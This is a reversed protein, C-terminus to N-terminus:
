GYPPLLRRFGHALVVALFLLNRPLLAPWFLPLPRANVGQARQEVRAALRRMWGVSRPWDAIGGVWDAPVGADGVTAGCIAGTVAGVTDADGGLGVAEELARRFDAPHSLWAHLAVPVTAYAYGSVGREQGIARAFAASSERGEVSSRLRDLLRTLEADPPDLLPAAEDLFTGVSVGEPGARAGHRAAAAVLLAAREARADTHTIRTAARVWSRVADDGELCLGLLAARMAPGNGASAVGSRAPPFGVWLRVLARGTGLGVGAPLGLLWLRLRWALSRTFRPLDGGSALFAQALMCTHETDDSLLGRGPLLAHRLGDGFLRRARRPSLGERPLGLADGVATGLLAGAV